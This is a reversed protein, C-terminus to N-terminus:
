RNGRGARRSASRGTTTGPRAGLPSPMGSGSDTSPPSPTRPIRSRRPARTPRSWWIPITKTRWSSTSQTCSRRTVEERLAKPETIARKLVFGGKSGTPVIVANKVMQAKMLGLVETRYDQRRESWRIGGRAVKGGRMHIAEMEPSYVFIEYLPTPKPMEPVLSSRFKISLATRGPKYANTRVTADVLGLANRLIRDQELSVVADLEALIKARLAEVAQPDRELSPVFRLEFLQVLQASISPYAVFADNKYEVPFGASV